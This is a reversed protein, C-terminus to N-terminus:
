KIQKMMEEIKEKCAIDTRYDVLGTVYRNILGYVKERAEELTQGSAVIAALRSAGVPSFTNIGDGRVCSSYIVSGGQDKIAEEDIKFTFPEVGITLAYGKSVLYVVVSAEKRFKCKDESLGGFVCSKVVDILPTELTEMVNLCEPDGIRSNFEMMKLDGNKRKFFGGNLVGNFIIGNSNLNEVVKEMFKKCKEVDSSTVFPLRGNEMAFCGMGGTGPGSDGDFRYPYDYTLPAVVISSGDTIGMTTFEFGDLKEEILVQGDQNLLLRAYDKVEAISKLHPGMVKVGKGGTLGDPKVVMELDGFTEIVQDLEGESTVVCFKPSFSPDVSDALNRAYSKSWEIKSGEKTPGFTKIGVKQLCDVVGAALIDDNNIIAIDIKNQIAFKSVEQGDLYNGEKLSGGTAEAIFAIGPNQHKVFAYVECDNKLKEAISGERGGNGVILCKLKPM